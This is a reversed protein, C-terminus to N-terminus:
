PTTGDDIYNRTITIDVAIRHTAVKTANGFKICIKGTTTDIIYGGLVLVDGAATNPDFKIKVDIDDASEIGILESISWWDTETPTASDDWTGIGTAGSAITGPYIFRKTMVNSWQQTAYASPPNSGTNSAGNIATVVASENVSSGPTPVVEAGGGSSSYETNKYYIKTSSEVTVPPTEWTTGNLGYQNSGYSYYINAGDKWINVGDFSTLGTWTMPEWTTGNLKYQTSGSSYYINTGDTWVNRGSFSTLGTWTMESWTTGNLKYHTTSNSYYMNTGDTWIYAGNFNTYGSWTMTNWTTGNLKRHDANMSYYINTGDSWVNAGNYASFNWTMTEWTTGNLKYQTTSNSYYINTGDTWIFDAHFNTNGSWIMTEWTTGNLKYQDSASSYYINTGDTWIKEGNFSTLGSWGERIKNYIFYIKSPDIKDTSPLANYQAQTLEMPIAKTDLAAQLDTQDSLTGTITGWTGGTSPLQSSPVKGTSDLSAVGNAVGKNSTTLVNELKVKTTGNDTSLSGDSYVEFANSRNNTAVGNGIEFLTDSKNNNYKGGVHQYNYGSITNYGEVHSADGTTSTNVGEAHSYNGGATNSNNEAHSGTGTASNNVGEAYSYNGSATNGLGLAMSGMGVTSGSARSGITLTSNMVVHNAANSGDTNMKASLDSAVLLKNSLSVTSPIVDKSIGTDKIDGNTDFAAFNDATASLKKQIANLASAQLQSIQLPITTELATQDADTFDNTSLGKGSVKDVKDDLADKIDKGAVAKTLNSATLSGLDLSIVDNTIDIGDGAELSGGGSSADYVFYLKSKDAKEAPTLANYQAETLEVADPKPSLIKNYFDKLTQLLYAKDIAKNAM